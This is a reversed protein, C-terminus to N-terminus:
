ELFTSSRVSKRYHDLADENSYMFLRSSSKSQYKPEEIPTPLLKQPLEETKSLLSVLYNQQHQSSQNDHMTFNELRQNGRLTHLSSSRRHRGYSESLQLYIEKRLIPSLIVYLTPSFYIKDHDNILKFSILSYYLHRSVYTILLWLSQCLLALTTENALSLKLRRSKNGLLISSVRKLFRKHRLISACNALVFAYIYCRFSSEQFTKSVTFILLGLINIILSLAGLLLPILNLIPSGISQRQPFFLTRNIFLGSASAVYKIADNLSAFSETTNADM